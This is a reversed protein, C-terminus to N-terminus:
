RACRAKRLLDCSFCKSVACSSSPLKNFFPSDQNPRDAPNAESTKSSAPPMRTWNNPSPALQPTEFLPSGRFPPNGKPTGWFCGLLMPNRWFRCMACVTIDEIRETQFKHFPRGWFLTGKKKLTASCSLTDHRANSSVHRGILLADVAPGEGHRVLHTHSLILGGPSRLNSDKNGNVLSGNQTYKQGM